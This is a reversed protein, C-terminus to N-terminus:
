VQFKELTNFLFVGPCEPLERQIKDLIREFLELSMNGRNWYPFSEVRHNAVQCSRCRLNCNGSVDIYVETPNWLVRCEVHPNQAHIENICRRVQSRTNCCVLVLVASRMVGSLHSMGYVPVGCFNVVHESEPFSPDVIGSVVVCNERLKRITAIGLISAGCVFIQKTRISNYDINSSFFDNM